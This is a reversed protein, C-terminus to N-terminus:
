LVFFNLTLVVLQSSHIVRSCALYFLCWCSLSQPGSPTGWAVRVFGLGCAFFTRLCCCSVFGADPNPTLFFVVCGHVPVCLSSAVVSVFPHSIQRHLILGPVSLTPLVPLVWRRILLFPGSPFSDTSLRLPSRPALRPLPAPNTPFHRFLLQHPLAFFDGDDPSYCLRV